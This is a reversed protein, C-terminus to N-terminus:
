YHTLTGLTGLIALIALIEVLFLLIDALIATLDTTVTFVDHWWIPNFRLAYRLLIRQSLFPIVANYLVHYLM